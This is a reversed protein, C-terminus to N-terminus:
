AATGPSSVTYVLYGIREPLDAELAAKAQDRVEAYTGAETLVDKFQMGAPHRSEFRQLYQEASPAAFPLEAREVEVSAGDFLDTVTAPDGWRFRPRENGAARAAAGGLIVLADNLGGATEWATILARGQPKLVRLIESAAQQPQETFIVAFLSLVRDFSADAFPLDEGKAVTFTGAGVRERAVDLLRPSPDVATVSAGARAALLAANGTGTGLDLVSHGQEIGAQAVVHEAAPELERATDEYSGRDWDM